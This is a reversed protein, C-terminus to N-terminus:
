ALTFSVLMEQCTGHEGSEFLGLETVNFQRLAEPPQLEQVVQEARKVDKLRTVTLHPSFLDGLKDYGFQQFKSIQEASFVAGAFIKEPNFPQHRYPSTAEVIRRQWAALEPTPQLRFGIWGDNASVGDVRCTVPSLQGTVEQLAACLEARKNEDFGTQYLTVHPFPGNESLIFYANESDAIATSVQRAAAAVQSPMRLAINYYKM